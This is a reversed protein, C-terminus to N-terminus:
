RVLVASFEGGYPGPTVITLELSDSATIRGSADLLLSGDMAPVAFFLSDGEMRGVADREFRVNLIAKLDVAVAQGSQDLRLRGISTGASGRVQRWSGTVGQPADDAPADACSPATALVYTLLIALRPSCMPFPTTHLAYRVYPM